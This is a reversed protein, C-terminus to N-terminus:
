GCPRAAPHAPRSPLPEPRSDAHRDTFTANYIFSDEVSVEGKSGAGEKTLIKYKGVALSLVYRCGYASSAAVTPVPPQLRLYLVYRSRSCTGTCPMHM